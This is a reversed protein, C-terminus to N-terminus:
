LFITKVKLPMIPITGLFSSLSYLILSLWKALKFRWEMDYPKKLEVSIEGAENPTAVLYESSRHFDHLKRSPDNQNLYFKIISANLSKGTIALYWKELIFDHIDPYKESNLLKEAMEFDGKHVEKKSFLIKIKHLFTTIAIALTAGAIFNQLTFYEMRTGM